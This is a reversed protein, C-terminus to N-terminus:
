ARVQWVCQCGRSFLICKDHNSLTGSCTHQQFGPTFSGSRGSTAFPGVVLLEPREFSDPPRKGVARRGGALMPKARGGGEAAMAAALRRHRRSWEDYPPRRLPRWRPTPPPRRRVNKNRLGRRRGRWHDLVGETSHREGMRARPPRVGVGGSARARASAHAASGHACGVQNCTNERPRGQRFDPGLM